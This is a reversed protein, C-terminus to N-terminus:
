GVLIQELIIRLNSVDSSFHDGYKNGKWKLDFSVGFCGERSAFDMIDVM